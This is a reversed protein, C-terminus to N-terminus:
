KPTTFKYSQNFEAPVTFTAPVKDISKLFRTIGLIDENKVIPTAVYAISTAPPIMAKYGAKKADAQAAEIENSRKPNNLANMMDQYCVRLKAEKEASMKSNFYVARSIQKYDGLVVAKGSNVFEQSFPYTAIFADVSGQDFAIPMVDTQMHVLTVDPNPGNFTLGNKTLIDSLVQEAQQGRLIAVKKGKLDKYSKINSRAVITSGGATVNGFIKIDSGKSVAIIVAGLTGTALDYGQRDLAMVVGLSADFGSSPRQDYQVDLGQKKCFTPLFGLVSYPDTNAGIVRVVNNEAAEAIGASISFALVAAATIKFFSKM